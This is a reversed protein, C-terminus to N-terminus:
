IVESPSRTPYRQPLSYKMSLSLARSTAKELLGHLRVLDDQLKRNLTSLDEERGFHTLINDFLYLAAESGPVCLGLSALWHVQGFAHM